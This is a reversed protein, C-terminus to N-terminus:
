QKLEPKKNDLIAKLALQKLTPVGGIIGPLNPEEKRAIVGNPVQNVYIM